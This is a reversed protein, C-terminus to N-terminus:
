QKSIKRIRLNGADAVFINGSGDMAMTVPVNFRATNGQGDAYGNDVTGAIVTKEGTRSVKFIQHQASFNFPGGETFYFNGQEDRVLTNLFGDMQKVTSRVGLPTYRYIGGYYSGGSYINNENDSTLSVSLLNDESFTSVIGGPTIKRIKIIGGDPIGNERAFVNGQRDTTISSMFYFRAEANAGNISGKVDGGAYNSVLGGPTIKRIRFNDSVFLNGQLDITIAGPVYFQAASGQGNATGQVGNGALTTVVGSPSIKRIVYNAGDTVYVNGQEDAVMGGLSKFQALIGPGDVYGEKGNGALTSVVYTDTGAIGNTGKDKKNCSTTLLIFIATTHVIAKKM